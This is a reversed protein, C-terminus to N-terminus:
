NEEQRRSEMRQRIMAGIDPEKYEFKEGKLEELKQRQESTLESLLKERLEETLKATREKLEENLEKQREKIRKRQEDDIGLAEAVLKSSLTQGTGQRQMQMQLKVQKLRELQHPLLMSEIQKKQEKKLEMIRKGLGKSAEKDGSTVKAIQDQIENGFDERLKNVKDLQDGVLELDEQVSANSLMSFADGGMMGGSMADSLFLGGMGGMGEDSSAVIRMSSSSGDGFSESTSSIIIPGGNESQLMDVDLSSETPETEQALVPSALLFLTLFSAALKLINSKM